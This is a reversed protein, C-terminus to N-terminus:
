LYEDVGELISYVTFVPLLESCGNLEYAYDCNEWDLDDASNYRIRQDDVFVCVVGDVCKMAKIQVEKVNDWEDFIYAYMRDKDPDDTLIVRDGIKKALAKTALDITNDVTKRLTAFVKNEM